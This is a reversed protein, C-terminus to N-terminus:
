KEQRGNKMSMIEKLKERMDKFMELTRQEQYDSYTFLHAQFVDNRYVLTVEAYIGRGMHIRHSYNKTSALVVKSLALYGPDINIRRKGQSSFSEEIGNTEAKIDALIGTDILKEFFVFRRTIPWGLEERYYESYDWPMPPSTHLITSFRKELVTQATNFIDPDSYLTGAFLLALEPSKIKGM